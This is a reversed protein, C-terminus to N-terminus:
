SPSTITHQVKDILERTGGDMRLVDPVVEYGSDELRAASGGANGIRHSKTRHQDGGTDTASLKSVSTFTPLNRSNKEVALQLKDVQAKTDEDDHWTSSLNYLELAFRM